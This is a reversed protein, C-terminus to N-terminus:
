SDLRLEEPQDPVGPKPERILGALIRQLLVIAAKRQEEPLPKNAQLQNLAQEARDLIEKWYESEAQDLFRDLLSFSDYATRDATAVFLANNRMLDSGKKGQLILQSLDELVYQRREPRIRGDRLIILGDEVLQRFGLGNTWTPQRAM